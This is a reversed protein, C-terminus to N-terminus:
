TEISAAAPLGTEEEEQAILKHRAPIYASLLISIPFFLGLCALAYIPADHTFGKTLLGGIGSGIIHSFCWVGGMLFASVSSAYRPMMHNGLSVGIPNYCGNCAGLGFLLALLWFNSMPPQFLFLYFLGLNLLGISILVKKQGIRDALLGLPILLSAGGLILLCHGGGYCIWQQHGQLRLVDPLFFIFGYTAAQQCLQSFYLFSLAKRNKGLLFPQILRKFSFKKNNRPNETFHQSKLLFLAVFPLLALFLTAYSFTTYLYSFLLQTIALGIAGGSAFVTITFGRREPILNQVIGAASPHFVGSGIYVLLLAIFLISYNTTLAFCSAAGACVLGLLVLKKRLGLDGLFGFFIQSGDGLFGAIGLLIGSLALDLHALTKYAPWIGVFLDIVMHCFWILALSKKWSDM